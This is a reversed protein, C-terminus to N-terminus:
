AAMKLVVVAAVATIGTIFIIRGYIKEKFSKKAFFFNAFLLVLSSVPLIVATKQPSLLFGAASLLMFFASLACTKELSLMNKRGALIDGGTDSLDKLATVGLIHLLLSLSCPLFDKGGAVIMPYAMGTGTVFCALIGRKKLVFPPLSYFVGFILVTFVLIKELGEFLIVCGIITGFTLFILWKAADHRSILGSPLPRWPKNASDEVVDTISNLTYVFNYPFLAVFLAQVLFLWSFDDKGLLRGAFFALFSLLFVDARYLRFFASLKRFM